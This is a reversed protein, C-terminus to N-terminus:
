IRVDYFTETVKLIKTHKISKNEELQSVNCIITIHESYILSLFYKVCKRMKDAYTIKHIFNHYFTINFLYPCCYGQSIIQNKTM